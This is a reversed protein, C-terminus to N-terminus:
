SVLAAVALAACATATGFLALMFAPSIATVNIAQMATIGQAAELRALAKMVFSSFAFFM